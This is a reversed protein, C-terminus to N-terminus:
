ARSITDEGSGRGFVGGISKEKYVKELSASTGESRKCKPKREARQKRLSKKGAACRHLGHSNRLAQGSKGLGLSSHSEEEQCTQRRQLKKCGVHRRVTGRQGPREKGFGEGGWHASRQSDGKLKGRKAGKSSKQAPLAWDKKRIV